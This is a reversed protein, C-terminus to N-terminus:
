NVQEDMKQTGQLVCKNLPSAHFSEFTNARFNFRPPVGCKIENVGSSCTDVILFFCRDTLRNLLIHHDVSDLKDHKTGTPGLTQM